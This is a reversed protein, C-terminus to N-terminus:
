PGIRMVDGYSTTGNTPDYRWSELLRYRSSKDGQVDLLQELIADLDATPELDTGYSRLLWMMEPEKVYDYVEEEAFPDTPLSTIYAIPTTLDDLDEPYVNNDIYYCELATALQRMEAESRAVKSRSQAQLFNPVSIAALMPLIVLMGVLGLVIGTIALPMGTAFGSKSKAARLAVIGLVIAPISM